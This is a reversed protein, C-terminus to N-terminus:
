RLNGSHVIRSQKFLSLFETKALFYSLLRWNNQGDTFLLSDQSIIAVWVLSCAFKVESSRASNMSTERFKLSVMCINWGPSSLLGQNLKGKTMENSSSAWNFTKLMPVLVLIFKSRRMDGHTWRLVSWSGFRKKLRFSGLRQIKNWKCAVVKQQMFNEFNTRVAFGM